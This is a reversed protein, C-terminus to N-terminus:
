KFGGYLCLASLLVLIIHTIEITFGLIDGTIGGIKKKSWLGILWSVFFSVPLFVAYVLVQLRTSGTWRNGPMDIFYLAATIMLALIVAPLVTKTKVHDVFFKGTGSERPYTFLLPMLLIATRLYTQIVIHDKPGLMPVASFLVLFWVGAGLVAFSGVAPEKMIKLISERDRYSFFGDITDMFGDLHLARTLIIYVLITLASSISEPFVRNLGLYAFGTIGGTVAGVLPFWVM